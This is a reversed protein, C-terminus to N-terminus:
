KKENSESLWKMLNLFLMKNDGKDLMSSKLWGGAGSIIIKGKGFNRIAIAPINPKNSTWNGKVLATWNKDLSLPSMGITCIKKIGETLPLKEINTFIPHLPNGDYCSKDDFFSSNKVKAGFKSYFIKSMTYNSVWYHAGYSYYGCLFLSGGNKIWKVIREIEIPDMTRAGAIFLIGYDDLNEVKRKDTYTRIIDKKFNGIATNAEYGNDELAKAATLLFIKSYFQVHAADILVRKNKPVDTPAPRTLYDFWFKQKKTLKKITRQKTDDRELLLALPTQSKINVNFGSSRLKKASIDSVNMATELNRIIYNGPLINKLVKINIDAEGGGWNNVYILYRGEKGLFASEIFDLKRASKINLPSKINNKDLINKFVKMRAIDPLNCGIIYVKGKGYNNLTIAAKGNAYKAIASANQPIIACGLSDDRLRPKSSANEMNFYSLDVNEATKGSPERKGGLLVLVNLDKNLDDEKKLSSSDLVLIGGKKIYNELKSLEDALIRDNGQMFIAKYNTLNDKLIKENSIVNFPVGSFMLGMYWSSLDKLCPGKLMKSVNEHIHWRMYELPYALAIKGKIRPKQAFIIDSATEIENKAQPFGKLANFEVKNPNIMSIRHGEPVYLYSPVFGSEGHLTREWLICRVQGYTLPVPVGARAPNISVGGRIGGWYFGGAKYNNTIKIAIVNKDPKLHKNLEISFQERFHKTQHLKIGNVYVTAFDALESANFFIQEKKWKDPVSFTYRYWGCNADKHGQNAWMDPVKIRPWGSDDYDTKYFGSKEGEKKNDSMFRWNSNNMDVVSPLNNMDVSSGGISSELSIQPKDPVVSSSLFDLWMLISLMSKIQETNENDKIQSIMHMSSEDGYFDELKSKLFPSVGQAGYDFFFQCHAQITIPKGPQYKNLLNKMKLFADASNKESFKIWDLWLMRSVKKGLVVFSAESGNGKLPPNVESFKKFHTKWIRNASEITEHKAQMAKRFREIVESNYDMFSVETYPHYGFVPYQGAESMMQKWLNTWIRWAEPSDHRYMFGHGFTVFLDGAYKELTKQKKYSFGGQVCVNIGNKLLERINQIGEQRDPIISVDIETGKKLANLRREGAFGGGTKIMEIGLLKYLFPYLIVHAESSLLYVPKGDKYFTSKNISIEKTLFKEKTLPIKDPIAVDKINLTIGKARKGEFKKDYKILLREKEDELQKKIAKDEKESYANKIGALSICVIFLFLIKNKRLM